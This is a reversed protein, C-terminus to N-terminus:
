DHTTEEGEEYEKKLAILRDDWCSPCMDCNMTTEGHWIIEVRSTKIEAGCLDCFLKTM